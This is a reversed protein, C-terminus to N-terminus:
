GRGAPDAFRGVGLARWGGVMLRRLARSGSRRRGQVARRARLLRPLQRLADRKARLLVVAQGRRGVHVLSALTLALHHPLYALLLPSPMNKLWAWVLNRHGHYVAFDSQRGAVASGVHHVVAGPVYLCRHGLLRLRFALDVDEFYCFFSEDLGGVELFADRRYLAAAACPGFVEERALRTGSASRGHDRRWGLGSVAYVDGTGDLRRPDDAVVQRSALFSYRPAEARAATLLRALWDPEPFADPNLLAIWECDPVERVGVNNAGAFGLNRGPEIVLVGHRGAAPVTALLGPEGNNVVVIRRAPLSQEAMADLCRGLLQEAKWNVIVVGVGGDAGSM